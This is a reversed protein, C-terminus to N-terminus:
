KPGEGEVLPMRFTGNQVQVVASDDGSRVLTATFTGSIETARVALVRVECKSAPKGYTQFYGDGLDTRQYLRIQLNDWNTSGDCKYTGVVPKLSEISWYSQSGSPETVTTRGFLWAMNLVTNRIGELGTTATVMTGDVSAKIHPPAADIAPPTDITTTGGGCAALALTTLALFAIKKFKM